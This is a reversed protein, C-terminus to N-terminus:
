AACPRWRSGCEGGPRCRTAAANETTVLRAAHARIQLEGIISDQDHRIKSGFGSDLPVIIMDQGQERLHAVKFRPM